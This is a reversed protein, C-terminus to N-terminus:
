LANGTLFGCILRRFSPSDTEEHEEPRIGNTCFSIVTILHDVLTHTGFQVTVFDLVIWAWWEARTVAGLAVSHCTALLELAVECVNEQAWM